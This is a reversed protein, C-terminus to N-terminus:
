EESTNSIAANPIQTNNFNGSIKSSAPGGYKRVERRKSTGFMIEVKGDDIAEEESHSHSQYNAAPASVPASTQSQPAAAVTSSHGIDKLVIQETAGKTQVVNDKDTPNKLVLRFTTGADLYMLKELDEPTLALTILEAKSAAIAPTHTAVLGEFEYTNGIALVQIDQLVIKTITEGNRPRFTAIVDVYDGQQIFGGVSSAKSVAISVARKGAPIARALNPVTDEDLLRKPTIIDDPIITMATYRNTLSAIDSDTFALEPVSSANLEKLVFYAAPDNADKLNIMSPEIRTRAAIQKKCVIVKKKAEIVPVQPVNINNTPPQKEQIKNWLIVSVVLSVLLAVLIAKKNVLFSGGIPSM